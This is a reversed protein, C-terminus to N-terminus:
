APRTRLWDCMVSNGSDVTAGRQDPPLNNQTSRMGSEKAFYRPILGLNMARENRHVEALSALVRTLRNVRVQGLSLLVCASVCFICIPEPKGTRDVYFCNTLRGCEVCFRANM